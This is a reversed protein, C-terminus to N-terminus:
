WHQGETNDINHIKVSIINNKICSPNNERSYLIHVASKPQLSVNLKEHNLMM